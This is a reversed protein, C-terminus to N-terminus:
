PPSWADHPSRGTVRLGTPAIAGARILRRELQFVRKAVQYGRDSHELQGCIHSFLYATQVRQGIALRRSMGELMSAGSHLPPDEDHDRRWRILPEEDVAAQLGDDHEHSLGTSELLNSLATRLGPRSELSM